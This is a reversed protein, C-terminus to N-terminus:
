SFVIYLFLAGVRMRWDSVAYTTNQYFDVGCRKWFDSPPQWAWWTWIVCHYHVSKRFLASWGLGSQAVLLQLKWLKNWLKHNSDLPRELRCDKLILQLCGRRPSAGLRSKLCLNLIYINKRYLCIGREKHKKAKQSGTAKSISDM